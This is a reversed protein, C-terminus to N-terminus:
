HLGYRDYFQGFTIVKGVEPPPGPLLKEPGFETGTADKSGVTIQRLPSGDDHDFIYQTVHRWEADLARLFAEGDLDFDLHGDITDALGAGGGLSLDARTVHPHSRLERNVDEISRRGCGTLLALAGGVGGTIMTRRRM